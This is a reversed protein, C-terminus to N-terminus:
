VTVEKGNQQVKIKWNWIDIGLRNKFLWYLGFQVDLRFNTVSDPVITEAIIKLGEELSYECNNEEDVFYDGRNIEQQIYLGSDYLKAYQMYINLAEYEDENLVKNM